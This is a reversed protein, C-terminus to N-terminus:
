RSQMVSSGTNFILSNGSFEITITLEENKVTKGVYDIYSPMPFTIKQSFDGVTSSNGIGYKRELVKRIDKEPFDPLILDPIKLWDLDKEQGAYKQAAEKILNQKITQYAKKIKNIYEDYAEKLQELDGELLLEKQEDDLTELPQNRLTDINNVDNRTQADEAQMKKGYHQNVVASAQISVENAVLEDIMMTGLSANPAHFKDAYFGFTADAGLIGLTYGLKALQDEKNYGQDIKIKADYIAYGACTVDWATNIMLATTQGGKYGKYAGYIAGAPGGSLGGIVAGLVGGVIPLVSQLTAIVGQAVQGEKTSSDTMNGLTWNWDSKKSNNNPTVYSEGYATTANSQWIDLGEGGWPNANAEAIGRKSPSSSNKSSLEFSTKGTQALETLKNKLIEQFEEDDLEFGQHILVMFTSFLYISFLEEISSNKLSETEKAFNKFEEFDLKLINSEIQNDNIFAFSSLTQLRKTKSEEYLIDLEENTLSKFSLGKSLRNTFQLLSTFKIDSDLLNLSVSQEYYNNYDEIFLNKYKTLIQNATDSGAEYNLLDAFDDNNHMVLLFAILNQVKENDFDIGNTELSYGSSELNMLLKLDDKTLGTYDLILSISYFDDPKTNIIDNVNRGKSPDVTSYFGQQVVLKALDEYGEFGNECMKQALVSTDICSNAQEPPIIDASINFINDKIINDIDDLIKSIVNQIATDAYSGGEFDSISIYKQIKADDISIGLESLISKIAKPIGEPNTILELKDKLERCYTRGIYNATNNNFRRYGYEENYILDELHEKLNEKGLYEFLKQLSELQEETANAGLYAVGNETLGTSTFVDTYEYLPNIEKKLDEINKGEKLVFVTANNVSKVVTDFWEDRIDPSVNLAELEEYTFTNVQVEDSGKAAALKNCTISYSKSGSYFSVIYNDGNTNIRPQAVGIAKLITEVQKIAINGAAFDKIFKDLAQKKLEEIDTGNVLANEIEEAYQTFKTASNYIRTGQIGTASDTERNQGNLLNNMVMRQNFENTIANIVASLSTYGCDPKVTYCKVEGDEVQIEDFYKNILEQPLNYKKIADATIRKQKIDDVQSAAAEKNCSITYKKGDIDFSVVINGNNTKQEILEAGHAKLGIILESTIMNGQTFQDIIKSLELNDVTCYGSRGEVKEAKASGLEAHTAGTKQRYLYQPQNFDNSISM